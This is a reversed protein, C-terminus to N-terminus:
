YTSRVPQSQELLVSKSEDESDQPILCGAFAEVLISRKLASSKGRLTTLQQEIRDQDAMVTKIRAVASRQYDLPSRRYSARSNAELFVSKVGATTKLRQEVQRRGEGVSVYAAIWEPLVKTKDAVVRILKDPHLVGSGVEPVIAAAGVYSPNGSYRTFLLDGSDM